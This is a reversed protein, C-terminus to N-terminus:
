AKSVVGVVTLWGSEFKATEAVDAVGVVGAVGVVSGGRSLSQLWM